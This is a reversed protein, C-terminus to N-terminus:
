SAGGIIREPDARDILVIAKAAEILSEEEIMRDVLQLVQPWPIDVNQRHMEIVLLKLIEHDQNERDTKEKAILAALSQIRRDRAAQAPGHVTSM